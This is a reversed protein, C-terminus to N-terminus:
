HNLHINAQIPYHDSFNVRHIKHSNVEMKNDVIIFDIRLGPIEHTNGLGSGAEKFTDKRGNKLHEYALSQPTDNLDGCLIVPHPSNKLHALITNIQQTRRRSYGPYNYFIRPIEWKDRKGVKGEEGILNAGWPRNSQLHFNYIRITDQLYAIDAWICVGNHGKQFEIEGKNIIPYKTYIGLHLGKSYFYNPLPLLNQLLKHSNADLDQGCFIDLPTLTDIFQQIKSNKQPKILLSKKVLSHAFELNYSIVNLSIPPRVEKKFSLRFFNITAPISLVLITFSFFAM